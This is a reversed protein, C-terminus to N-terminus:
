PVTHHPTSRYPATEGTFANQAEVQVGAPTSAPQAIPSARRVFGSGKNNVDLDAAEGIARVLLALTAGRYAHM